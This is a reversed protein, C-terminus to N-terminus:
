LYLHKPWAAVPLKRRISARMWETWALPWLCSILLWSWKLAEPGFLLVLAGTVAAWRVCRFIRGRSPTYIPLLLAALPPSMAIVIILNAIVAILVAGAVAAQGIVFLVAAMAVAAVPVALVLWKLWPRSCVARAEWNGERLMRAEACTLLVHRYQRNATKADGLANVALREAEDTTAGGIIAADRASEYHEQIERRVQAASDKALRRTAQGLWSDLTTM